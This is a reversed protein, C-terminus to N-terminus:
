GLFDIGRDDTFKSGAQWEAVNLLVEPLVRMAHSTQEARPYPSQFSLARFSRAVAPARSSPLIM